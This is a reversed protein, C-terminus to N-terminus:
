ECKSWECQSCHKCGGENIIDSGCEPCKEGTIEKTMYKGLVRCVASTFSTINSNVKKATKIIYKIDVNHRLLMSAYLTTAREEVNINTLELEPIAVLDSKYTYHMKAEKTIVGKHNEINVQLNPKFAFVEYPKNNLLGVLVIFQEGNAKVLHFDAELQKPRKPAVTTQEIKDTTLVASRLCNARYITVGKLGHKWAELYIDYVDDITAEEPLNITSSISADIFKQLEAQVKIRDIPKVDASTIFYDPLESKGTVRKFEDVIRADVQYYTDKGHLSQTKRYYSLAFYPEVGTSCEMMTATSGTPACTLLQSNRLGYERIDEILGPNLNLNRIFKSDILKDKDCEEYCGFAKALENSELIAEEAMTKYIVRIIDLSKKSGYTVGLKILLDHLGFTGLGIQRWKRVSERQEELPHLELGEDLVSNLAYVATRIALKFEEIKFSADITYPNEVFESLNISGLLCSGGAPLPEEACPNVGAYKFNTGELLNYNSIHDWYLIGPEAWEWNRSALLRFLVRAKATKIILEDSEPRYFEMNWDRDEVVAKMFKDSVRVSINAKTCIDPNTKLNIFEELDPHSCDISIMLAGRRGEQGILGTIYSYFDMFSTSGSTSKAANHVRAGRPALKSVDIGCGGGYSYTRALKKGTEFISELNDEPPSIVYCNSYTVKRDTIGRSALIRGGFLFKKDRILQEVDPDGGSVRKFWDDLSEQNYCYKKNWIDISLQNNNLWEQVTM